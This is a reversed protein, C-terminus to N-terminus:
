SGFEEVLFAKMSLIPIDYHLPTRTGANSLVGKHLANEFFQEAEEQSMPGTEGLKRLLTKRRLNLSSSFPAQRLRDALVDLGSGDLSDIRDKYYACKNEGGQKLVAKLDGPTVQGNRAQLREAATRAYFTIHQPWGHTEQTIAAVWPQIDVEQAGGEKVLWDRTVAREDAESLRGLNILCGSKFRSIGLRAFVQRSIGLGGCALVVPKALEGNHIHELTEELSSMKQSDLHRGLTQVEDLV